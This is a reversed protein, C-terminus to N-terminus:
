TAKDGHGGFPMSTDDLGFRKCKIRMFETTQPRGFADTYAIVGQLYIAKGGGKVEEIQDKTFAPMPKASQRITAGPGLTIVHVPVISGIGYKTLLPDNDWFVHCAYSVEYAPTQGHNKVLFTVKLKEPNDLDLINTDQIHVYARLQREATDQMTRLTQNATAASAHAAAAAAHTAVAARGAYLAAAITACLTFFLLGVGVANLGTQEEAARAMRQQACLDAEDKKSCDPQYESIGRKAPSTPVDATGSRGEWKDVRQPQDPRRARWASGGASWRCWVDRHARPHGLDVSTQHDDAHGDRVQGAYLNSRGQCVPALRALNELM